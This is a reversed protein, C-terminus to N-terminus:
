TALPSGSTNPSVTGASESPWCTLRAVALAKRERNRCVVGGSYSNSPRCSGSRRWACGADGGPVLITEAQMPAFARPSVPSQGCLLGIRGVRMPFRSAAPLALSPYRDAIVCTPGGPIHVMAQSGHRGADRMRLSKDKHLCRRLLDRVKLPTAIPLSQWDPEARVVAALIDGVDEGHFAQKGALM